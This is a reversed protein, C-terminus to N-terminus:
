KKSFIICYSECFQQSIFNLRLKGFIKYLIKNLLASKLIPFILTVPYIKIDEGGNKKLIKFLDNAKIQGQHMASIKRGMIKNRLYRPTKTIIFGRGGLNLLSIIKKIAAEKDDIYEIARSSFFLDYSKEPKYNLFDTEFYNINNKYQELAQRALKLMESSIDVLDFSAEPFFSILLKTWTGNGPGLELINKFNTNLFLRKISLFTMDYGSKYFDDKFWRQDEYKLSYEKVKKNYINKINESNM